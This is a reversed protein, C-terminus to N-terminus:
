GGGEGRGGEGKGRGGGREGGGREEGRRGPRPSWYFVLLLLLSSYNDCSAVNGAVQSFKLCFIARTVDGKQLKCCLLVNRQM